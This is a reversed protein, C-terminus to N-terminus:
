PPQVVRWDGGGHRSPGPHNEDWYAADEPLGEYDALNAYRAKAQAATMAKYSSDFRLFRGSDNDGIQPVDAAPNPSTRLLSEWGNWGSSIGHRFRRAVSREGCNCLASAAGAGAGPQSTM